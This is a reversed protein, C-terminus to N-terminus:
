WPNYEKKSLDYEGEEIKFFLSHIRFLILPFLYVSLLVSLFSLTESSKIFGILVILNLFFYFAPFLSALFCGLTM